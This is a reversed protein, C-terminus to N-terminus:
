GPGAARKEYSGTVTFLFGPPMSPQDVPPPLAKRGSRGVPQFFVPVEITMTVSM